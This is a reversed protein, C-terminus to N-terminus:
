DPNSRHGQADRNRRPSYPKCSAVIGSQKLWTREAKSVSITRVNRLALASSCQNSSARESFRLRLPGPVAQLARPADNGHHEM